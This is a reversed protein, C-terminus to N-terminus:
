RAAAYPGGEQSAASRPQPKSVLSSLAAMTQPATRKAIEGMFV